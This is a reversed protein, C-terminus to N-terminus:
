CLRDVYADFSPGSIDAMMNGVPNHILHRLGMKAKGAREGTGPASCDPADRAALGELMADHQANITANPLYLFRALGDSLWDPLRHKLNLLENLGADRLSDVVTVQFRLEGAMAPRLSLSKGEFPALGTELQVIQAPSLRGQRLLEGALIFNGKVGATAVMKDILQENAQEFFRHWFSMDVQWDRVIPEPDTTPTDLVIRALQLKRGSLMAQWPLIEGESRYQELNQFEPFARLQVYRDILPTNEEVVSRVAAANARLKETCPRQDPEGHFDCLLRTDGKIALQDSPDILKHGSAPDVAQHRKWLAQGREAVSESGQTAAGLLGFFLNRERPVSEPPPKLAAAVEPRIAEDISTLYAFAVLGLLLVIWLFRHM